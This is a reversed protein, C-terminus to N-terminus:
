GHKKLLHSLKSYSIAVTIIGLSHTSMEDQRYIFEIHRPQLRFTTPIYPAGSLFLGKEHLAEESDVNYTRKLQNVILAQLGKEYGPVFIDALSIIKGDIINIATLAKYTSYGERRSSECSYVLAKYRNNIKVDTKVSYEAEYQAANHTDAYYLPAFNEKYRAVFNKKICQTLQKVTYQSFHDPLLESDIIGSHLILENLHTTDDKILVFHLQVKCKPSNERDTLFALTDTKEEYFSLRYVKDGDKCGWLICFICFLAIFHVSQKM